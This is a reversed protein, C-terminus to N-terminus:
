AGKKDDKGIHQVHRFNSPDSIQFGPNSGTSTNLTKKPDPSIQNRLNLLDVNEILDQM